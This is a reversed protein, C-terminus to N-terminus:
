TLKEKTDPPIETEFRELADRLQMRLHERISGQAGAILKERRPRIRDVLDEERQPDVFRNQRRLFEKLDIM